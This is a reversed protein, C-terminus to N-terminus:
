LCKYNFTETISFISDMPLIYTRGDKLTKATHHYPTKSLPNIFKNGYNKYLLVFVGSITYILNELNTNKFYEMRNHKVNNYDKHWVLSDEIKSGEFPKISFPKMGEWLYFGVEMDVLAPYKETLNKYDKINFKDPSKDSLKFKKVLFKCINEFETCSRLFLEFNRHSSIKLNDEILSVYELIKRFDTIILNYSNSFNLLNSNIKM